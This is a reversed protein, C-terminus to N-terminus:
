TPGDGVSRERETASTARLRQVLAATRAALSRPPSAAQASHEQEADAQGASAAAQAAGQEMCTDPTPALLGRKFLGM